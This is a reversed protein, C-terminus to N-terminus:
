EKIAKCNKNKMFKNREKYDIGRKNVIFSTDSYCYKLTRNNTKKLYKKLLEIYTNKFINSANLKIFHKYINNYVNEGLQRWPVSYKIIYLIHALIYQITYKQSKYKFNYSDKYKSNNIANIISRIVKKDIKSLNYTNTITIFNPILNKM